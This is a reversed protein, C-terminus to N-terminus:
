DMEYDSIQAALRMEWRTRLAHRGINRAVHSEGSRAFRTILEQLGQVVKSDRILKMCTKLFTTIMSPDVGPRM